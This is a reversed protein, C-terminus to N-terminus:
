AARFLEINRKIPPVYVLASKSGEVSFSYSTNQQNVKADAQRRSRVDTGGGGQRLGAARRAGVVASFGVLCRGVPIVRSAVPSTLRRAKDVWTQCSHV